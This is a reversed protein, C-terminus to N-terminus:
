QGFSGGLSNNLRGPDGGFVLKMLVCLCLHSNGHLPSCHLCRRLELTWARASSTSSTIGWIAGQSGEHLLSLTHMRVTGYPQFRIAQLSLWSAFRVGWDVSVFVMWSSIPIAHWCPKLSYELRKPFMNLRNLMLWRHLCAVFRVLPMWLSNAGSSTARLWAVFCAIPDLLLTSSLFQLAWQARHRIILNRQM